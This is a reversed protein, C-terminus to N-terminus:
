QVRPEPHNLAAVVPAPRGAAAKLLHASGTQALVQLATVAAVSQEAQMAEVLAQQMVEPGLQLGIYFTSGPETRIAAGRGAEHLETAMLATWYLAHLDARQPALEFAEKAQRTGVRISATETSVATMAVTGAQEDWNWRQVQGDDNLSWEHQQRLHRRASKALEAVAGFPTVEATRNVTGFLLRALAQKAALQVGAPQSDEFAPHWLTMVAQKDDLWGLAEIVTAQLDAHPAEVAGLLVPVVERNLRTLTYLLLKRQADQKSTNLVSVIRAAAFNGANRLQVIAVEREAATKSLDAILKDVRAPDMAGKRFAANVRELLTISEPQLQRDNSLRLFMAPGYKDRLKLLTAEDLKAEMLKQLYIHALNPRALDSMLVVADFLTEPTRPETLLPNDELKLEAVPAKADGDQASVFRGWSVGLTLAVSVALLGRGRVTM